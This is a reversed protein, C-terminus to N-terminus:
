GHMEWTNKIINEKIQSFLHVKGDEGGEVRIIM